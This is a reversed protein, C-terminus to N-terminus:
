SESYFLLTKEMLASSINGLVQRPLYSQETLDQAESETLQQEEVDVVELEKQPPCNRNQLSRSHSHM